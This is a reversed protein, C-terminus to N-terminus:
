RAASSRARRRSRPRAGPRRDGAGVALLAVAAAAARLVPRARAPAVAMVGSRGVPGRGAAARAGLGGPGVALVPLLLLAWLWDPSQFTVVAEARLALRGRRGARAPRGRHGGAVGTVETKVQETGIFSGLQEYVASVAEADQSEYADGGTTEALDRMGEVDPPVRQGNPLVGDVRGWRSPSCRCAPRARGSPRWRRAAARGDDRRGVARRHAGGRAQRRGAAVGQTARIADLSAVVAEGVATAGDPVLSEIARDLADRDTTPAM